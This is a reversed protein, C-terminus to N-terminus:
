VAICEKIKNFIGEKIGPINMIDEIKGFPGKTERYSIIERARSEGVGNLTMLEEQTALNINIKGTDQEKAAATNEHELNGETSAGTKGKKKKAAVTLKTGDSVSQAQNLSLRDAKKTFGGAREVVEVIRPERDFVYVGPNKVEGCIDIYIKGAGRASNEPERGDGASVGGKNAAEGGAYETVVPVDGERNNACLYIIGCLFVAFVGILVKWKKKDM